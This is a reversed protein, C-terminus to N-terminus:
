EFANRLEREEEELEREIQLDLNESTYYASITYKCNPYRNCGLFLRSGDKTKILRLKGGKSKDGCGCAPCLDGDSHTPINKSYSM